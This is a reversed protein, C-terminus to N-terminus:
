MVATLDKWALGQSEAVGPYTIYGAYTHGGAIAVLPVYLLFSLSPYSISSVLTGHLTMTGGSATGFSHLAYAFNMVYPNVGHIKVLATFRLTAM